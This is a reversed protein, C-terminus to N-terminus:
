WVIILSQLKSKGAETHMVRCCDSRADGAKRDSQIGFKLLVSTRWHPAARLSVHELFYEDDAGEFVYFWFASSPWQSQAFFWHGSKPLRGRADFRPTAICSRPAARKRRRAGDAPPLFPLHFFPVASTPSLQPRPRRRSRKVPGNEATAVLPLSLLRSLSCM